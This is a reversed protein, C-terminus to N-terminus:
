GCEVMPRVFGGAGYSPLLINHMYKENENTCKRIQKKLVLSVDPMLRFFWM